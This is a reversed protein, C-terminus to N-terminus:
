CSECVFPVAVVLVVVAIVAFVVTVAVLVTPLLPVFRGTAVPSLALLAPTESVTPVTTTLTSRHWRYYISRNAMSRM